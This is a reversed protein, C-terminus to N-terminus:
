HKLSHRESFILVADSVALERLQSLVVLSVEIRGKYSVYDLPGHETFKVHAVDTLLTAQLNNKKFPGNSLKRLPLNERNRATLCHRDSGNRLDKVTHLFDRELFSLLIPLTDIFLM